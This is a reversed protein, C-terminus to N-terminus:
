LRGFSRIIRRNTPADNRLTPQARAVQMTPQVTAEVRRAVSQSSHRVIHLVPESQVFAKPLKAFTTAAKPPTTDAVQRCEALFISGRTSQIAAVLVAVFIVAGIYYAILNCLAAGATWSILTLM